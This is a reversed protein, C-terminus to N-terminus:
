SGLYLLTLNKLAGSARSCKGTISSQTGFNMSSGVWAGALAYSQVCDRETRMVRGEKRFMGKRSGTAQYGLHKRGARLLKLLARAGIELRKGEGTRKVHGTGPSDQEFNAALRKALVDLAAYLITEKQITRNRGCLLV